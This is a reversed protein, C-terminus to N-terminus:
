IEKYSKDPDLVEYYHHGNRKEVPPLEMYDGYISSLYAHYNEPLNVKIGEFIGETGKGYYEKPM